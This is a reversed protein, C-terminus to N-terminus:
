INIRTYIFYIIFMFNISLKLGTKRFYGIKNVVIEISMIKLGDIYFLM